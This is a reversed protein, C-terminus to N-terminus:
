PQKLAQFLLTVGIKLGWVKYCGWMTWQKKIRANTDSGPSNFAGFLFDWFSAWTPTMIEGKGPLRDLAALDADIIVKYNRITFIISELPKLQKM